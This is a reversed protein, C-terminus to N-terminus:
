LWYTLKHRSSAYVVVTLAIGVLMIAVAVAWNEAGPANGLLPARVTELVHYFPNYDLYESRGQLIEPKWIIPTMFFSLQIFSGVIPPVDRFRAAVLGFLLAVWVANVLFLALGPVIWFTQWGVPVGFIAAVAVFVVSNHILVIVNSWVLRYVHIAYPLNVQKITGEAGIFANCGDTFMAQVFWWLLFGSALHPMYSALSLQFLTSYLFGLAGVVVAMSITLWLPGLVSRRYRALIDYWGLLVWLEYM